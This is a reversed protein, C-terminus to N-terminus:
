ARARKSRKGESSSSAAPYTRSGLSAKYKHYEASMQARTWGMGKHTARFTQWLATRDSFDAQQVARPGSTLSAYDYPYCTLGPPCGQAAYKPKKRKGGILRGAGYFSGGLPGATVPMNVGNLSTLFPPQRYTPYNYQM